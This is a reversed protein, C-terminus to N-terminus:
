VWYGVFCSQFPGRLISSLGVQGVISGDERSCIVFRQNMENRCNKLMRRFYLPGFTDLDPPTGEWPALFRRSARKLGMFERGDARTPYRLFVREGVQVARALGRVRVAERRVKSM